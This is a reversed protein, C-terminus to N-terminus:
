GDALYPEAVITGFREVLRALEDERLLGRERADAVARHVLDLGYKPAVDEIARPLTVVEVGSFWTRDRDPLDERHFVIHAPVARVIRTRPPITV